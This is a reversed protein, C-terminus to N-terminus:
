TSSKGDLGQARWDQPYSQPFGKLMQTACLDAKPLGQGAGLQRLMMLDKHIL